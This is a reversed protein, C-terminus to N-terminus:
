YSYVPASSESAQSSSVNAYHVESCIRAPPLPPGMQWVPFNLLLLPGISTQVGELWCGRGEQRQRKDGQQRM